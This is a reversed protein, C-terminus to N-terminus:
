DNEGGKLPPELHFPLNSLEPTHNGLATQSANFLAASSHYDEVKEWKNDRYLFGPEGEESIVALYFLGLRLYYFGGQVGKVPSRSQWVDHTESDSEISQYITFLREMGESSGITNNKLETELFKLSTLYRQSILPPLENLFDVLSECERLISELLERDEKKGSNISRQIKAIKRKLSTNQKQIKSLETRLKDIDNKLFTETKDQKELVEQLEKKDRKGAVELERFEQELATSKERYSDIEERLYRVEESERAQVAFSLLIMIFMIKLSNVAVSGMDSFM